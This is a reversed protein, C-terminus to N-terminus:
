NKNWAWAALVNKGVVTDEVVQFPALAIHRTILETTGDANQAMLTYTIGEPAGSINNIQILGSEVRLTYRDNKSKEELASFKRTAPLATPTQKTTFAARTQLQNM